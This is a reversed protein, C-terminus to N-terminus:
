WHKIGCDCLRHSNVGFLRRFFVTLKYFYAMIGSKHCNCSCNIGCTVCTGKKYSHGTAPIDTGSDVIEGCVSCITKATQGNETCTPAKEETVIVENHGTAKLTELSKVEGCNVCCTKNYGDQTCTPSVTETTYKHADSWIAYLITTRSTLTISSGSEYATGSGDKETSWCCFTKDGNSMVSSDLLPISDGISAFYHNYANGSAGNRDYYLIAGDEAYEKSCYGIRNVFKTAITDAYARFASQKEEYTKCEPNKNWRFEDMIASAELMTSRAKVKQAYASNYGDNSEKIETWVENVKDRFDEHYFLASFFTKLTTSRMVQNAVQVTEDTFDYGWPNYDGNWFSNDFDWIPGGYFKEEGAKKYFFQSTISIDAEMAFDELIYVKAFSELDFYESYYKGLENYGTESLLAREAENYLDAVYNVENASAPEPSKVVVAQGRASVFGGTENNWRNPNELELLYGGTIDAPNNPINVWKRAGAAYTRVSGNKGNGGKSLTDLDVGPNANENAKELDDIDIRSSDVEISECILYNGKYEGNIYMDVHRYESTYALGSAAALDLAMDNRQLSNDVYNAVLTWKKAKEMGLVSTKKDFKINYPKKAYGWTANGRGKISKLSKDLSLSGNEYIRITGPESNEKNKHIYSLSGSQTAIYVAPLNESKLVNLKYNKGGCALTFERDTSFVDTAVGSTLEVGNVTVADAGSFYVTLASTDADSPLFLYYNDASFKYWAITDSSDSANGYPNVSFKFAEDAAFSFMPMLSLLMLAALFVSLVKKMIYGKMTKHLM